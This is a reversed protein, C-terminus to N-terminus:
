LRGDNSLFLQFTALSAQYVERGDTRRGIRDNVVTQDM